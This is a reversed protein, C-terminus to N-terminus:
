QPCVTLDRLAYLSRTKSNSVMVNDLYIDWNEASPWSGAHVNSPAISSFTLSSSSIVSVGNVFIELYGTGAGGSDYAMEIFRWTGTSINATTSTIYHDAGGTRANARLEDGDRLEVFFRDTGDQFVSLLIVYNVWTNVNVWAGIRGATGNVVDGTTVTLDYYAAAATGGAALHVGYTGVNAAGAIIEKTGGLGVASWLGDAGYCDDADMQAAEARWFLLIDSYDEGGGRKAAIVGKIAGPGALSSGAFLLISLITLLRKM